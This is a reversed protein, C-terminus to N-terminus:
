PRGAGLLIVDNFLAGAGGNSALAVQAGTIQTTACTGQLQQVARIVRQLLQVSGGGHSFSMLGGDTTIPLSGDPRIAGSTVFAGGEGPGCFGFAELQRIIEFSFPDYLEAVDVDAPRLGAMAFARQAARAGIRGNEVADPAPSVLDWAPPHQYSPGAHDVGGGLVFVPTVDLDRAREVTTLLLACGGEGTLSCDLLHFPDAIMRSALVDDATYPGKGHFIAEPNVHGNNRIVAACEAMQEPTTGYMHMHRRAVMAFELATFIGFPLVFEGAFDRTWPATSSRDTYTGAGGGAILVTSCLGAAIAAAADLVEPIGASGAHNTWAPGLGLTYILDASYQGTVGDIADPSIGAAAIVGLAAEVTISRSTHGELVTAQRTNHVAAVVVDRFPHGAM